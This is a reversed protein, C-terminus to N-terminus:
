YTIEIKLNVHKVSNQMRKVAMKMKLHMATIVILKRTFLLMMPATSISSLINSEFTSYVWTGIKIINHHKGPSRLVLLHSDVNYLFSQMTINFIRQM